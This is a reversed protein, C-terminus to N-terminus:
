KQEDNGEPKELGMRKAFGEKTSRFMTIGAFDAHLCGEEPCAAICKMCFICDDQLINKHEVDDAIEKIQMDCVNYCDGCKTCKDGEKKLRLLAFKSFTYHLASMPCFFCFFRKKVFAGAIFMGTFVMGLTTLIMTTRSSFDIRWQSVDGVFLPTLMRGPCIECFAARWEGGLLGAGTAVPLLLLLVLLVYKIVSLREFQPQSYRSYRIGFRKRLATIWDQMTGVPCVFGCWAKNFLIFLLLFTVFGILVGIGAMGFLVGTPMGLQHQLPLLYCIGGNERDYGCSFVPLEKGFDLAFYGGYVLVVFSLLQIVTRFRRLNGHDLFRRLKKM